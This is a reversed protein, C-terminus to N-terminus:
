QTGKNQIERLAERAQNVIFPNDSSTQLRELAPIARQDGIERLVLTARLEIRGQIWSLNRERTEETLDSARLERSVSATSKATDISEILRPVAPRGIEVLSRMVPSMGQIMDNIEEEEMITVLLPVAEAAHLQGLMEYIHNELRAKTESDTLPNKDQVRMHPESVPGRDPGETPSKDGRSKLDQLLSMLPKTAIGGLRALEAKAELVVLEDPSQLDALLNDIQNHDVHHPRQILRLALCCVSALTVILVSILVKGRLTRM